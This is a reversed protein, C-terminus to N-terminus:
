RKMATIEANAVKFRNLQCKRDSLAKQFEKLLESNYNIKTRGYAICQDEYFAFDESFTEDHVNLEKTLSILLKIYEDRNKSTSLSSTSSSTSSSSSSSSSTQCAEIKDILANRFKKLLAPNHNERQSYAVFENGYCEFDKSFTENHIDLDETFTILSRIYKDPDDSMSLSSTSSSSSSSPRPHAEVWKSLLVNRFQQLLVTNNNKRQDYTLFEKEYCDFDRSFTENHIDLSETLTILSTIYKDPDVSMSSSSMSSSWASSSSSSLSSSHGAEICCHVFFLLLLVLKMSIDERMRCCDMRQSALMNQLAVCVMIQM